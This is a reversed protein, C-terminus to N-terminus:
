QRVPERSDPFVPNTALMRSGSTSEPSDAIRGVSQFAPAAINYVDRQGVGSFALKRATVLATRHVRSM